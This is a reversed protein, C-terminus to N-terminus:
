FKGGNPQLPAPPMPPPVWSSPQRTGERPFLGYTNAVEATTGGNPWNGISSVRERRSPQRSLNGFSDKRNGLSGFRLVEPRDLDFPDSQRVTRYTGTVPTYMNTGRRSPGPEGFYMDSDRSAFTSMADFGPVAMSSRNRTHRSLVAQTPLPPVKSLERFPDYTGYLSQAANSSLTSFSSMTRQHSHNSVGVWAPQAGPPDLISAFPDRAEPEVTPPPVRPTVPASRPDPNLVLLTNPNPDAFPNPSGTDEQIGPFRFGSLSSPKKRQGNEENRESGARNFFGQPESISRARGNSERSYLSGVSNHVQHRQYPNSMPGAQNGKMRAFISTVGTPIAKLKTVLKPGEQRKENWRVPKPKRKRLCFFLLTSILALVALGGFVGGIIGGANAGGSLTLPGDYSSGQDPAILGGAVGGSPTPTPKPNSRFRSSSSQDPDALAPSNTISTQPIPGTVAPLAANSQVSSPANSVAPPTFLAPPSLSALLSTPDAVPIIDSSIAVAAPAVITPIPPPQSTEVSPVAAATVKAEPIRQLSTTIPSSSAPAAVLAAFALNNAM